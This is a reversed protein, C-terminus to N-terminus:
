SPNIVKFILPQGFLLFLLILANYEEDSWVNAKCFIRRASSPFHFLRQKLGCHQEAIRYQAPFLQALVALFNRFPYNMQNMFSSHKLGHMPETPGWVVHM